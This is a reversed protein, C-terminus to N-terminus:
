PPAIDVGQAVNAMFYFAGLGALMLLIGGYRIFFLDARGPKRKRLLFINVVLSAVAIGGVLYMRGLNLSRQDGPANRGMFWLLGELLLAM